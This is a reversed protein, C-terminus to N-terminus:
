IASVFCRSPDPGRSAGDRLGTCHKRTSMSVSITVKGNRITFPSSWHDEFTRNTAKIRGRAFASSWFRDGQAIVRRNQTRTEV